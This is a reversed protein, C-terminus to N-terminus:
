YENKADGAIQETMSSVMEKHRASDRYLINLLKIMEERKDKAIGPTEKILAKSFNTYLAIADEEVHILEELGAVLREKTIM